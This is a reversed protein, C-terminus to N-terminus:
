EKTFTRKNWLRIAEITKSNSPGEAGCVCGVAKLRSNTDLIFIGVETSGCFPCPQFDQKTM